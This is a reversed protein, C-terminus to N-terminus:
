SAAEYLHRADIDNVAELRGLQGHMDAGLRRIENTIRTLASQNLNPLDEWDPEWAVALRALLYKALLRCEIDSLEIAGDDYLIM